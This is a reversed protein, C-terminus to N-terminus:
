PCLCVYVLSAHSMLIMFCSYVSEPIFLNMCHVDDCAYICISLHVSVCVSLAGRHVCSRGTFPVTYTRYQMPITITRVQTVDTVGGREGLASKKLAEFLGGAGTKKKSQNDSASSSSPASSTSVGGREVGQTTVVDGWLGYVSPAPGALYGMAREDSDPLYVALRNSRGLPAITLTDLPTQLRQQLLQTEVDDVTVDNENQHAKDQVGQPIAPTQIDAPRPVTGLYHLVLREMTEIPLDGVMSVEVNQPHLLRQIKDKVSDLSLDDLAHHNPVLYRSDARTLSYKLSEQCASELGKVTADFDEHFAQRARAFADDEFLFDTLLIHLVQMVAEIGTIAPASTTSTTATSSTVSNMPSNHTSTDDLATHSGAHSDSSSLSTTSSSTTSPISTSDTPTTTVAQFDFVLADQQATIDVMVHHDICFLEVQERTMTAFAGGEQM